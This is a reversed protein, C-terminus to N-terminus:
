ITDNLVQFFIGGMKKGMQSEAPENLVNKDKSYYLNNLLMESFSGSKLSMTEYHPYVNSKLSGQHIKMEKEKVAKSM